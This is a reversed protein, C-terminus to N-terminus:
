SGFLLILLARQYNEIVLLLPKGAGRGGLENLLAEAVHVDERATLSCM